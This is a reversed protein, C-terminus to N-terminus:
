PTGSDRMPAGARSATLSCLTDLIVRDRGLPGTMMGNYKHLIADRETEIRARLDLYALAMTCLARLEDPSHEGNQHIQTVDERTLLEGHPTSEAM